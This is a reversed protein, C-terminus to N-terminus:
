RARAARRRRSRREWGLASALVVLGIGAPLWLAGSEQTGKKPSDARRVEFSETDVHLLPRPTPTSIPRGSSLPPLRKPPPPGSMVTLRRGAPDSRMRLMFLDRRGELQPLDICVARRGVTDLAHIFPEHGDGDYLTYAWRGDPSSARTIPLGAMREDPEKPDVIPEPLLRGSKVDLARVEYNTIYDPGRNKSSRQILYLTSGDPSVADFSFDGRLDIFRALRRSRPPRGPGRWRFPRRTDLIAFQSTRPPYAHAFRSLVLTRGDASLGGGSFDYAVAPVVFKGRLYWWRSLRGGDREVRAVVTLNDGSGPAMAIYRYPSGHVVVGGPAAMSGVGKAAATDAVAALVVIALLAAVLREKKTM